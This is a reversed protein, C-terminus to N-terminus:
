QTAQVWVYAQVRAGGKWIEGTRGDCLGNAVHESAATKESSGWLGERERSSPTTTTTLTNEFDQQHHSTRHTNQHPAGAVLWTVSQRWRCVLPAAGRTVRRDDHFHLQAANCCSRVVRCVRHAPFATPNHVTHVSRAPPALSSMTIANLIDHRAVVIQKHAM